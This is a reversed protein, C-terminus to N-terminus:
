LALAKSQSNVGPTLFAIVEDPLTQLKRRRRPREALVQVQDASAQPPWFEVGTILPRVVEATLAMARWWTATREQDLEDNIEGFLHRMRRNVLLAYLLKGYLWVQALASGQKARLADVDLVSKWKKFALEVQWRCRYLKLVGEASLEEPTLTTIILVFEALLLTSEALTSKSKSSRKQRCRRRAQEAAAKGLRYAHVYAVAKRVGKRDRIEVKITQITEREQDKLVKALDIKEGAENYVPLSHPNLRVVVEGGQEKVELIGEAQSYGRDAIVVEGKEFRFNKLTEGTKQDTVHIELFELSVLEMRVHIRNETGKAGPGNVTTADVVSMRRGEWKVGAEVKVLEMVMAKLWPGCGRLRELISQETIPEYLLSMVGAVERASQDLGGYLLVVRLLQEVTKVKRGRAFAKFERAKEREEESLGQIIEEFVSDADRPPLCM